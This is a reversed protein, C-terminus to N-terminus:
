GRLIGKKRAQFETFAQPTFNKEIDGVTMIQPPEAFARTYGDDKKATKFREIQAVRDKHTLASLDYLFFPLTRKRYANRMIRRHVQETASETTRGDTPFRDGPRYRSIIPSHHFININVQRFSDYLFLSTAVWALINQSRLCACLQGKSGVPLV